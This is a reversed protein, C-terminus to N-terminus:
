VLKWVITRRGFKTTTTAHRAVLGMQVLEARRSRLGSSSAHHWRGTEAIAYHRFGIEEDSMEYDALLELINRQTETLREATLSGAAQHSTEPDTLRAHPM